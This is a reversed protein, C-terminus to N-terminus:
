MGRKSLDHRKEVQAWLRNNERQMHEARDQLERMKRAQKEQKKEM